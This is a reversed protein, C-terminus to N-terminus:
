LFVGLNRGEITLVDLQALFKVSDHFLEIHWRLVLDDTTQIGISLQVIHESTGSLAELQALVQSGATTIKILRVLAFTIFAHLLM